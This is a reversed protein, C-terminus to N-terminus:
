LTIFKFHSLNTNNQRKRYGHEAAQTLLMTPPYKSIVSYCASESIAVYNNLVASSINGFISFYFYLLFLFLSSFM